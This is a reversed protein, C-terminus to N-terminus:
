IQAEERLKQKHSPWIKRIRLEIESFVKDLYRICRNYTDYSTAPETLDYVTMMEKGANDIEASDKMMASLMDVETFMTRMADTIEVHASKSDDMHNVLLAEFHYYVPLEARIMSELNSRMMTMFKATSAFDVVTPRLPIVLANAANM